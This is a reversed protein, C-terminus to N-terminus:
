DRDGGLVLHLLARLVHNGIVVFLRDAGSMAHNHADVMQGGVGTNLDQVAAAVGHVGGYSGAKCQSDNM